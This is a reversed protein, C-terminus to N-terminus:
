KETPEAKDVLNYVDSVHPLNGFAATKIALAFQPIGQHEVALINGPKRLESVTYTENLGSPPVINFISGLVTGMLQDREARNLKSGPQRAYFNIVRRINDEDLYEEFEEGVFLIQTHDNDVWKCGSLEMVFAYYANDEANTCHVPYVALSKFSSGNYQRTAEHYDREEIVDLLGFDMFPKARLLADKIDRTTNAIVTVQYM